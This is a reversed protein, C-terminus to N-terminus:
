EPYYCIQDLGLIRKEEPTLKDLIEQRRKQLLENERIVELTFHKCTKQKPNVDSTSWPISNEWVSYKGSLNELPEHVFIELPEDAIIAEKLQSATVRAEVKDKDLILVEVSLTVPYLKLTM